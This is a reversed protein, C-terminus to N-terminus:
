LLSDLFKDYEEDSGWLSSAVDDVKNSNKLQKAADRRDLRARTKEVEKAIREKEAAAKDNAKQNFATTKAKIEAAQVALAKNAKVYNVILRAVDSIKENDLVRKNTGERESWITVTGVPIEYGFTNIDDINERVDAYLLTKDTNTVVFQVGKATLTPRRCNIKITIYDCPTFQIMPHEANDNSVEDFNNDIVKNSFIDELIDLLEQAPKIMYKDKGGKIAANVTSTGITEVIFRLAIDYLQEGAPKTGMFYSKMLERWATWLSPDAKRARLSPAKHNVVSGNSITDISKLMVDQEEKVWGFHGFLPEGNKSIRVDDSSMISIGGSNYVKRMGIGNNGEFYGTSSGRESTHLSVLKGRDNYDGFLPAAGNPIRSLKAREVSKDILDFAGNKNAVATYIPQASTVGNFIDLATSSSQRFKIGNKELDATLREIIGKRKELDPSSAESLLM